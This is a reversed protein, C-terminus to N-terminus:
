NADAAEDKIKDLRKYCERMAETMGTRSRVSEGYTIDDRNFPAPHAEAAFQCSAFGTQNPNFAAPESLTTCGSVFSGLVLWALPADLGLKTLSRSNELVASFRIRKVPTVM